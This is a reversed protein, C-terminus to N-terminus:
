EIGTISHSNNSWCVWALSFKTLVEEPPPTKNQYLLRLIEFSNYVDDAFIWRDMDKDYDIVDGKKFTRTLRSFVKSIERIEKRTLHGMVDEVGTTM